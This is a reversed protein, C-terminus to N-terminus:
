PPRLVSCVAASLGAGAEWSSELSALLLDTLREVPVGADHTARSGKRKSPAFRLGDVTLPGHRCHRGSSSNQHMTSTRSRANPLVAVRNLWM